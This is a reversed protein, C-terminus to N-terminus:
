RLDIEKLIRRKNLIKAEPSFGVQDRRGTGVVGVPRWVRPFVIYQFRKREAKVFEAPM